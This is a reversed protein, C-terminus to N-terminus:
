AEVRDGLREDRRGFVAHVPEDGATHRTDGPDPLHEDDLVATGAQGFEITLRGEALQGGVGIVGVPERWEAVEGWSDGDAPQVVPLACTQVGTVSTDRIGDEAQFFFYM